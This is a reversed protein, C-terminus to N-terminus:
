NRSQKIKEEERELPRLAITLAQLHNVPLNRPHCKVPKNSTIVEQQVEQAKITYQITGVGATIIRTDDSIM